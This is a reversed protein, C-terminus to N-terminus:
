TGARPLSDLRVAQGAAASRNAAEALASLDVALRINETAITGQHIHDVWQEFPSPLDAPLDDVVIWGDEGGATRAAHRRLRADPVGYLLSGETGHAEITFPSRGVFGVEASGLAGNAYRLTVIANDEVERGTVYGYSASVSEPIGLFWRTLYLPHCGLDILAGGTAERPDFFHAPLWGDPEAATRVAGDHAVRVRALSVTGLQGGDVIEKVARAYGASLRPLSVVLAVGAREVAAVIEETEALTPAIVKETFIHKGARAAAVIVDRHASTPTTVIVGDIEPRGLLDDLREDFRAGRAEAAARGREPDEDWVAAIETGPHAAAEAAYDKAHVHWFSLVALRLM